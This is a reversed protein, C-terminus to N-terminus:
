MNAQLAAQLAKLREPGEDGYMTNFDQTLRIQAQEVERAYADCIASAGEEDHLYVGTM